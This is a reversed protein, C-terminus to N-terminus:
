SSVLSSHKANDRAIWLHVADPNRQFQAEQALYRVATADNSYQVSAINSIYENDDHLSHLGTLVEEVEDRFSSGKGLVHRAVKEALHDFGHQLTMTGTDEM